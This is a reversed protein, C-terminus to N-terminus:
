NVMTGPELKHVPQLLSFVEGQGVALIMGQSELGRITRSELNILFPCQQGLLEEPDSFFERIGSVIQRHNEEGIDVTLKLLRDAEPVVEAAIITGIRIELKTFDDYTILEKEM